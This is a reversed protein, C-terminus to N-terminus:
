GSLLYKFNTCALVPNDQQSRHVWVVSSQETKRAAQPAPAASTAPKFFNNVLDEPQVDGVAAFKAQSDGCYDEYRSTKEREPQNESKIQPPARTSPPPVSSGRQPFKPRSFPLIRGYNREIYNPREQNSKGRYNGWRWKQGDSQGDNRYYKSRSNRMLFNFTLDCDYPDDSRLCSLQRRRRDEWVRRSCSSYQASPSRWTKSQHSLSRRLM